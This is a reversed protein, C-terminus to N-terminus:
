YICRWRGMKVLSPEGRNPPAGYCETVAIRINRTAQLRSPRFRRCLTGTQPDTEEMYYVRLRYVDKELTFKYFYPSSRDGKPIQIYLIRSNDESILGVAIEQGSKNIVTITALNSGKGAGVILPFAFLAILLWKAYGWSIKSPLRHLFANMELIIYCTEIEPVVLKTLLL